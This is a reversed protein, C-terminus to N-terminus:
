VWGFTILYFLPTPVTLEDTGLYRWVGVDCIFLLGRGWIVLAHANLQEYGEHHKLIPSKRCLSM